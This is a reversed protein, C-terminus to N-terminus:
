CLLLNILRQIIGDTIKVWSSETPCNEGKKLEDYTWTQGEFWLAEAKSDALEFTRYLTCTDGLKQLRHQLRVQWERDYSLQQLDIGVGFKANLYATTALAAAASVLAPAAM